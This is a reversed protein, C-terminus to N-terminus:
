PTASAWRAKAVEMAESLKRSPSGIVRGDLLVARAEIRPDGGGERATGTAKWAGDVVASAEKMRGMAALVDAKLVVANVKAGRKKDNEEALVTKEVERALELVEVSVRGTRLLSDVLWMKAELVRDSAPEGRAELLPVAEELWEIAAEWDGLVRHAMAVNKAARGIRYDEEPTGHEMAMQYAQLYRDLGEHPRDRVMATRALSNITSAVQSSSPGHLMQWHDLAEGLKLESADFLAEVRSAAEEGEITRISVALERTAAALHQTSMATDFHPRKLVRARMGLAETYTAVATEFWKLEMARFEAEAEHRGATGANLADRRAAVGYFFYVRGLNHVIMALQESEDGDQAVIKEALSLVRDAAQSEQISLYAKGAIVYLRAAVEPDEGLRERVSAELVGLFEPITKPMQGSKETDLSGLAAEITNVAGEAQVRKEESIGYLVALSIASAVVLVGVTAVFASALKHRAVTKRLVYPLSEARAQIPRNELLRKLDEALEAATDYRREPVADLSMLTILDLEHSVGKRLSSPKPVVGDLRSHVLDAVSEVRPFPSSGTLTEFLVIGLAYVDARTDVADPDGTLQEPSAYAFTGLFEGAATALMQAREVNQEDQLRALGFDLVHANGNDDVLINAPKIDRHIVGRRHAFAIADSITYLMEAAARPSPRVSEWWEDLQIGEVFEMAYYVQKDTTEGSEYVTVIAPHRLSAIVEIEREFRGRQRSTAFRGQLLMKLAVRRRTGAQEALWVVGQGGRHLERLLRYGTVTQPIGDVEPVALRDLNAGAFERLLEDESRIRDVLAVCAPCGDLHERVATECDGTAVFVELAARSPCEVFPEEPM